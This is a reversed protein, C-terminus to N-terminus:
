RKAFAARYFEYGVAIDTREPMYMNRYDTANLDEVLTLDFPKLYNPLDEPLLGFTWKEENDELNKFLKETGIFDEPHDLVRKDIYTFILNIGRTFRQTFQLTSDIARATLYNTVGEWLITTPLDFHIDCVVAIEDFTQKNFDV